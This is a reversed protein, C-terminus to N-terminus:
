EDRLSDVINANAARFAQWAITSWAIVIALGAALAFMWWQIDIRYAYTQLWNNMVWWALPAALLFAILVLRIFDKSLLIIISSVSSGLVKRIGIEKVRTNITLLALAFLGLCSIIIAISTGSIVIKSFTRESQYLNQTNEDLYSPEVKAKPNVKKWIVNVKDLTEALQQTEVRVFIYEVTFVNPNVSITLPEVQARLDQFNFDDMIGIVTSKGNLDIEKGLIKDAGGFQAAMQKNIVVANTDTGFSRDFDRGGLLKIGLTNLYDYDVRIFNTQIEKNEHEFGFISRQLTGDRGKGINVDAASVNKVWTQQSLEARMRQVMDEKNVGAGIPISIVETKNFGLPKNSIYNLQTSIVITAIILIIAIVFQLVTLSSRLNSTKIKNSGKLSQIINTRAAKFAPLGGALLSILLFAVLFIVLNKINFLDTIKLQYNMNANFQPLVLYAIILGVLLAILCLIFSELTLQKVIDWTTGGLTKRTGIERNRSIANALSLNIFNSSAIFMILGSILLLIWPYNSSLSAAPGFDNLHVKAMPLLHFSFYSGNIDAKGGDRKLRDIDNKFFQETFAKTEKSFTADNVEAKMKVYVEHDSNDWAQLQELYGPRNEFRYLSNFRLSSNSPLDKLVGGVTAAKWVGNLNVEIQKGVVDTSGFLNKAMNETLVMNDLGSLVNKNGSIFPFDFIKFFDEDVFRNTSTFEKDGNKLVLKSNAYRTIGEISPIDKKLQPALPSPMSSDERKGTEPESSKYLLAIREGNPHFNDFSLEFMATLFLVTSAAIAIALGIIHIASLSKTKLISRWATKLMKTTNLNSYQSISIAFEM